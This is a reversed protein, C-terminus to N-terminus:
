PCKAASASEDGIVYQCQSGDTRQQWTSITRSTLSASIQHLDSGIELRVIDTSRREAVKCMATDLGVALTETFMTVEATGAVQVPM